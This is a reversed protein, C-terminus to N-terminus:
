SGPRVARYLGGAASAFVLEGHDDVGIHSLQPVTARERRVDGAEDGPGPRLSWLAGSCFDGYVYRRALGPLRAGGYVSGGTISCGDDHSYSAVPWVLEGERDLAHRAIRRTGEFASWGLNKPPEDLELPVRNVEEVEDQGVDAIWVEGLAPDFWFRWPNRLGTLVPEWDPKGGDVRAAILKGLLSAPDQATRRPDFAGGGDGLGLYLRGDPGFALQGGNHNEEPQDLYLLERLPEPELTGDRRARFEAVRTDGKRDSWHLYVRRDVMFDPHFAIGLLGQEAGTLVRGSLDLLTRRRGGELRVVRGPQELVWLAGDDGPAAGVWTPRNLGSAIRAVDFSHARGSEQAPRPPTLEDLPDGGALARWGGFALALLLAASAVIVLARRRM